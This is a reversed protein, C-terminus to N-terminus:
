REQLHDTEINKNPKAKLPYKDPNALISESLDVDLDPWHYHGPTFEEINFIKEIPKSKFWPYEEFSLFHETGSSTLLWLGFPSVNTVETKSTDKGAASSNM